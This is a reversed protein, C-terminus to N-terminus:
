AAQAAAKASAILADFDTREQETLTWDSSKKVEAGGSEDDIYKFFVKADEGIEFERPQLPKDNGDLLEIVPLVLKHLDNNEVASAGGDFELGLETMKAVVAAKASPLSNVILTKEAPSLDWTGSRSSYKVEGDLQGGGAPDRTIELVQLDSDEVTPKARKISM